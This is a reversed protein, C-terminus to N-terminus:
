DALGIRGEDSCWKRLVALDWVPGTSLQWEPIPFPRDPTRRGALWHGITQKSEGTITAAEALGALEVPRRNQEQRLAAEDDDILPALYAMVGDAMDMTGGDGLARLISQRVEDSM